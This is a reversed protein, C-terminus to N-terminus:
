WGDSLLPACVSKIRGHARYTRRHTKPAQNVNILKVYLEEPELDNATANAEANKILSVLFKASKVPWRGTLSDPSSYEEAPSPKNLSPDFFVSRADGQFGQGSSNQWCRRQSTQLACMAQAGSRRFPLRPSKLGEHWLRCGRDRQAFVCGLMLISAEQQFLLQRTSMAFRTNKYHVRLYTGRSLGFKRRDEKTKIQLAM